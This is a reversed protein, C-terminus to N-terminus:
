RNVNRVLRNRVVQARGNRWRMVTRRVFRPCCVSDGERYVGEAIHLAGARLNMRTNCTYRSFLERFEGYMRLLRRPGCYGTGDNSHVILLEPRRDGTVDGREVQLNRFQWHLELGYDKSWGVPDPDGSQSWLAIGRLPYISLPGRSRRWTVLVHAPEFRGLRPFFWM